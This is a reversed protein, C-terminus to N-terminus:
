KSFKQFTIARLSTACELSRSLEASTRHETHYQARRDQAEPDFSKGFTDFSIFFLAKKIKTAYIHVFVRRPRVNLGKVVILCTVLRGTSKGTIKEGNIPSIANKTNPLTPDSRM